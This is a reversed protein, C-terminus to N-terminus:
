EKQKSLFEELHEFFIEPVEVYPFHGCNKLVVWKSGRIKEHLEKATTLPIPDVDGHLVLTPVNLRDLIESLDYPQRIVLADLMEQIKLGNLFAVPSLGIKILDAKSPDYCYTRCLIGYYKESTEPDGESFAQTEQISQFEKQFPEMRIEFEKFFASYGESSAPHSNSLILKEVAEPYLAAYQVALFAGWSHAFLTVKKYGLERRVAELDDLFRQIQMSDADIAGTSRGCGRQDYFIVQHKEALKAMQPLLYEQSLGPGGHIVIIPDGQGLIRCFIQAADAEVFVEKATHLDNRVTKSARGCATFCLIMGILALLTSRYKM